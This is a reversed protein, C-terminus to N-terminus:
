VPCAAFLHRIVETDEDRLYQSRKQHVAMIAVLARAQELTYVRLKSSVVPVSPKPFKDDGQWQRVRTPHYQMARALEDTSFTVRSTISNQVTTVRRKTGFSSLNRLSSSCDRVTKAKSERYRTREYGKLHERFESDEKYRQRKKTKQDM